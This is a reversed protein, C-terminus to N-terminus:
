SRSVEGVQSPPLAAMDGEELKYGYLYSYYRFVGTAAVDNLVVGLQRVPLRDMAALKAQAMKRDSVGVRLVMMLNGTVHAIAFPDIGAGLPPSDIIITDYLPKVAAVFQAMAVSQLLEPGRHRRAGCTVVTLNQFDTTQLIEDLTTDGQLYDLLGPAQRTGFTSHLQGRRIDGDILLTRRGGEAFSMALNSSILSKGEGAGPSSITFVIPQSPDFMHVLHLRITRFAEVVQSAAEPDRLRRAESPLAPVTGIIDLGLEDTAQEPYRFRQDLRDLLLALAIGIGLSGAIAMLLTRVATNKTPVRPSDARDLINVDPITSLEALRSEEYSKQLTQYLDSASQVERHLRMDDITRTPVDNLVRGGTTLQKNLVNAQTRLRALAMNALQPIQQSQIVNLSKKASVVAPYEDTYTRQLESLAQAKTNYDAIAARLNDAGIMLSNIALLPDPTGTGARMDSLIQETTQIDQQLNDYQVKAGLYAGLMPDTNPGGMNPTPNGTGNIGLGPASTSAQINQQQFKRLNEESQGLRGNAIQLQDGITKTVESVKKRKLTDSQAVFQALWANLTGAAEDPDSSSLTVRLFNSNDPLTTNARLLLNEAADTLTAVSFRAVQGPRVAERTPQWLFGLKRGISDGVQGQELPHEKTSLTYQQGRKDVTLEYQGARYEPGVNFDHFLKSDVGPYNLYLRRGRVVPEIVRFSRFLDVWSATGMLEDAEIPGNRQNGGGGGREDPAIWITAHAEYEPSAQRVAFLGGATGLVLCGIVLWKYRGLASSYRHWPTQPEGGGGGGGGAIPPGWQTPVDLAGNNADAPVLSTPQRTFSPIPTGPPM